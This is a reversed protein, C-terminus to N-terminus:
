SIVRGSARVSVVNTVSAAVAIADGAKLIQNKLENSDFTAGASISQAQLIANSLAPTGGSPVIYVALTRSSGDTNTATFKDIIVTKGTPVTYLITTTDSAFNADILVSAAISM